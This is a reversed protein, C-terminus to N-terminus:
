GVQIHPVPIETKNGPAQNKKNTLGVLIDSVIRDAFLNAKIETYSESFDDIKIKIEESLINTLM